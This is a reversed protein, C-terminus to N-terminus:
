IASSSFFTKMYERWDEPFINFKKVNIMSGLGEPEMHDLVEAVVVPNVNEWTVRFFFRDLGLTELATIEKPSFNPKVARTEIGFTINSASRLRVGKGHIKTM